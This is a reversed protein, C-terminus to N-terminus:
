TGGIKKQLTLHKQDERVLQGFFVKAMPYDNPSIVPNKVMLYLQAYVLSNEYSYKSSFSAFHYDENIEAPLIVDWGEPIRVETSRVVKIPHSLDLSYQRERPAFIQAYNEFDGGPLSLLFRDNAVSMTKLDFHFKIRFWTPTSLDQLDSM